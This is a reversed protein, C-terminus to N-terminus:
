ENAFNVTFEDDRHGDYNVYLMGQELNVTSVKAGSDRMSLQLFHIRTDPIIHLVSGDEFEVEARADEGRTWLRVGESLPSNLFAKEWSQGANRDIEVDGEISSLRVIRAQSDALAPIALLACALAVLAFAFKGRRISMAM